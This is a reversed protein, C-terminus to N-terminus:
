KKCLSMTTSTMRSKAKTSFQPNAIRQRQRTRSKGQEPGAPHQLWLGFRVAVALTVESLDVLAVSCALVSVDLFHNATPCAPAFLGLTFKLRAIPFRKALLRM